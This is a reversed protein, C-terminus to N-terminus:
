IGHYRRVIKIFHKRFRNGFDVYSMRDQNNNKYLLVKDLYDIDVKLISVTKKKGNKHKIHIEFETEKLPM